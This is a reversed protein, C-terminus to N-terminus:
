KCTNAAELQSSCATDATCADSANDTCLGYAKYKAACNAPLAQAMVQCLDKCDALTMTIAGTCKATDQKVCLNQCSTLYAQADASLGSDKKDDGGCAPLSLASLSLIACFWKLSNM